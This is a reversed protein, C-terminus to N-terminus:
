MYYVSVTMPKNQDVGGAVTFGLGIGAEKHLVVVHMDEYDQLLYLIYM